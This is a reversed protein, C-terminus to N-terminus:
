CQIQKSMGSPNMTCSHSDHEGYQSQNTFPTLTHYFNEQQDGNTNEQDLRNIPNTNLRMTGNETTTMTTSSHPLAKQGHWLM